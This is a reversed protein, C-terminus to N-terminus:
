PRHAPGTAGPPLGAALLRRRALAAHDPDALDLSRVFADVTFRPDVRLVEAAAARAEEDLGAGAAAAARWIHGPRYDLMQGTSARLWRLAEEDRGAVAHAKGLVFAAVPPHFPDRRMVREVHGIAEDLRGDHILAIGYRPEALNPNLAFAREYEALSGARDRRWLLVRALTARAEVLEGDLAVAARALAFARDSAAPSGHEARLAEHAIPEVFTTVYTIALGHTAPGSRPDLALADEFHRRAAAIAPGREGSFSAALRENGRLVLDHATLSGPPKRRARDLEEQAIRTVLRPLLARTIEDGLAFHDDADRDWSGAWIQRRTETDTLQATVRLRREERRLGGTVLYRAGLVRGIRDLDESPGGFRGASNRAIVLLGSFRSLGTVLDETLAAALYAQAPDRSLNQFPLVAVSPPGAPVARPPWALALVGALVALVALAGAVWWRPARWRSLRGSPPAKAPAPEGDVSVTVPAEFLYGRRPVTRVLAQARDGLAARVDSVCRTLSDDTVVVDPWLAGILEDKPLLRGRNEVLYALLEFSKPRLPVPEAGRLLRGRALDLRFDDFAFVKRVVADM